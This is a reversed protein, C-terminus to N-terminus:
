ARLEVEAGFLERMRKTRFDFIREIDPRVLLRHVIPDFLVAYRVWDRIMTGGDREL